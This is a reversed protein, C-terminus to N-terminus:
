ASQEARAREYATDVEKHWIWDMRGKMTKAFIPLCEESSKGEFEPTQLEYIRSTERTQNQVGQARSLRLKQYFQMHKELLAEDSSAPADKFYDRLALALIYGDEVALGGGTGQHPLVAQAADGLLVIRGDAFVCPDFPDRDNLKWKLIQDPMCRIVDLAQDEFGAFDDLMGERTGMSSWSEKLEGLDDAEVHKFGIVNLRTNASIPYVFFHRDHAVWNVSYTEYKWFPKVKEIDVVGRYAIQGSYVPDDQVFHERIVSHIEDAGIVFDATKETGDKFSLTITKDPNVLIKECKKQTHLTGVNRDLCEERLIELYEPRFVPAQRQPITDDLPM